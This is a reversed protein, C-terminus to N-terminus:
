SDKKTTRLILNNLHSLLGTRVVSNEESLYLNRINIIKNRVTQARTNDGLPRIATNVKNSVFVCTLPSYMKNGAKILDKDLHKGQWDQKEMWRKFSSFLWWGAHVCCDSYTPKRGQYETSYCRRIMESWKSYYPCTVRKGNITTKVIYTADNIGVM